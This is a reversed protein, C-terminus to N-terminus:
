QILEDARILVSQTVAIGFARATKGNIILDFETPQEVPLDAPRASCTTSGPLLGAPWARIYWAKM